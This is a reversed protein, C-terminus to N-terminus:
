QGHFTLNLVDKCGDVTPSRLKTLHDGTTLTDGIDLYAEGSATYAPWAPQGGGNPDGTAAFRSWYAIMAASVNSDTGPQLWWSHFVYFLESSHFVGWGNTGAPQIPLHTFSYEFVQPTRATMAHAHWRAACNFYGDDLLTNWM